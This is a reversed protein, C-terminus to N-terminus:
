SYTEHVPVIETGEQGHGLEAAQTAGGLHEAHGLRGDRPAQPRQLGIQPQRQEIAGTVAMLQGRGPGFQQGLRPRDLGRGQPDLATGMAQDLPQRLRNPDAGPLPRGHQQRAAEGLQRVPRADLQRDGARRRGRGSARGLDQDPV